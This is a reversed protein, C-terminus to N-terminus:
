FVLLGLWEGFQEAFTRLMMPAAVALMLIGAFIVIPAAVFFVPLTPMMRAALGMGLNALIGMVFFPAAVSLGLYFSQAVARVMQEALDGPLIRGPPFMDYSLVMARIILHHLDTAFIVAIAGLMLGTSILTAGEFSGMSPAFANSLGSIMGIQYGAFQLGNLLIRATIGIWLGLTLEIGLGAILLGPTDLDVPGVPLAPYLALSLVIALALRHRVPIYAEGLAPMFMIVGGIRAFVMAVGLFEVTLLASINM